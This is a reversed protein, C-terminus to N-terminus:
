IISVLILDFQSFSYGGYVNRIMYDSGTSPNFRLKLRLITSILYNKRDLILSQRSYIPDPNGHM